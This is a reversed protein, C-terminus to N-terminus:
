FYKELQTVQTRVSAVLSMKQLLLVRRPSHQGRETAISAVKRRSSKCAQEQRGKTRRAKWPAKRRNSRMVCHVTIHTRQKVILKLKKCGKSPFEHQGATTIFYQQPLHPPTRVTFM